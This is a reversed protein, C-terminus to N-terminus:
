ITAKRIKTRRREVAPDIVRACVLGLLITIVLGLAAASLGAPTPGRVLEGFLLMSAIAAGQWHLLYIPYSFDGVAKDIRKLREAPREHFLVCVILMSLGINVYNGLAVLWGAGTLTHMGLFSAWIVWRLVILSVPRDLKLHQMRGYIESRYHWAMAGAAFPLSGAPIASYLAAGGGIMAYTVVIYLLSLIIWVMTRLPTRSLGLGILVYFVIEVTLAWTPPVLRSVQEFPMLGFVMTLNKVWDIPSDPMIIHFNYAQMPGAGFSVILMLSVVLAFWYSPYLRLARNQLYRAVGNVSYGYTGQMIATMLFGSLVFFSFVAYAGILPVLLLHFAVVEVALMTRWIGFM